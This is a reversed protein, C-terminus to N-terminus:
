GLPHSRQMYMQHHLAAEVRNRVGLLSFLARRHSKVTNPSIELVRAIEASSRGDALLSLVDRQRRSLQDVEGARHDLVARTWGAPYVAHGAVVERLSRLGSAVDESTVLLGDARGAVTHAIVIPDIDDALLVLRASRDVPGFEDCPGVAAAHVIVLDAESWVAAPLAGLRGPAMLVQHGAQALCWRLGDCCLTGATAMAVVWSRDDAAAGRAPSEYTGQM